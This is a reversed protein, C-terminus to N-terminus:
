DHGERSPPEKELSRELDLNRVVLAPAVHVGSRRYVRIITLWLIKADLFFSWNEAYWVDLELREKWSLENRGSIQALGTIGPRITHRHRERETYYPLYNMLLPRPGVLSMDGKLVNFLEPLEDLSTVRLFRGLPTLRQEDPLLNGSADRLDQMTRFKYIKFPKTDLGPREQVFLIPRGHARRVLASILILLPSATVLVLVAVVVDFLRKGKSV